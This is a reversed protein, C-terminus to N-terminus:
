VHARGIEPEWILAIRDGRGAEIHRDLSNYSLNLKGGVFWKYNQPAFEYAKDWHKFWHLEEAQRAWFGEPDAKAEAYISEDSVWAREKMAKTPWFVNEKLPDKEVWKIAESM